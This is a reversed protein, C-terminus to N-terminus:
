RRRAETRLLMPLAVISVLAMTAIVGFTEHRSLAYAVRVISAVWLLVFVPLLEGSWDARGHEQDLRAQLDRISTAM